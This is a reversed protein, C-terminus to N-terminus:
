LAAIHDAIGDLRDQLAQVEENLTKRSQDQDPDTPLLRTEVSAINIASDASGDVRLSDAEIDAPLDDVIVTTWGAPLVVPARRIVAAGDAFVTVSQITSKSMLEAAAAPLPLLAFFLLAISKRIM